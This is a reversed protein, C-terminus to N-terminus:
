TWGRSKPLADRPVYRRVARADVDSLDKAVEAAILARCPPSLHPRILGLMRPAAILVLRDFQQHRRAAEIARAIHRAFRSIYQKRTSREGDMASRVGNAGVARGPKDTELDRDHLRAAGDELSAALHMPARVSEVDFFRAEHEDAVVVRTTM